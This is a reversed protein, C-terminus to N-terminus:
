QGKEVVSAMKLQILDEIARDEDAWGRQTGQRVHADLLEQAKVSQSQNLDIRNGAPRTANAVAKDDATAKEQQRATSLLGRVAEAILLPSDGIGRLDDRSNWIQLFTQMAQGQPDKLEPYAAVAKLYADQQQSELASLADEKRIEAIADHIPKLEQKLTESLAVALDQPGPEKKKGTLNQQSLLEEIPSLGASQNKSLADVKESLDLIQKSLTENQAALSAAKTEADNTRKVFADIRAQLNNENALSQSTQGNPLNPEGGGSNDNDDLLIRGFTM